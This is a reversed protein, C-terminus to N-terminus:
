IFCLFSCMEQTGVKPGGVGVSVSLCAQVSAETQLFVQVPKDRRARVFIRVASLKQRLFMNKLRGLFSSSQPRRPPPNPPPPLPAPKLGRMPHCRQFHHGWLTTFILTHTLTHTHTHTPKPTHQPRRETNTHTYQPRHTHPSGGGGGGGRELRSAGTLRARSERRLCSDIEGRLACHM